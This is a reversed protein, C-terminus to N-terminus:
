AIRPVTLTESSNSLLPRLTAVLSDAEAVITGAPFAIDPRHPEPWGIVTMGAALGAYAGPASDEVVICDSPEIGLLWAARLYPEPDPKGYRVDNRTVSVLGPAQLGIASLNASTLMRDSNSVVAMAAGSARVFAMAADAGARKRLGNARDIYAAYKRGVLEGVGPAFGITEVLLRHCDGIAMGTIREGFGEPLAYGFSEVTAAMTEFHLLESDVLTGDMDFLVAKRSM